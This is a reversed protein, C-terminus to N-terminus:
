SIEVLGLWNGIGNCTCPIENPFYATIHSDSELLIIHNNPISPFQLSTFGNLFTQTFDSLSTVWTMAKSSFAQFFDRPSHKTAPYPSSSTKFWLSIIELQQKERTWFDLEQCVTVHPMSIVYTSYSLQCSAGDLCHLERPILLIGNFFLKEEKRKQKEKLSLCQVDCEANALGQPHQSHCRQTM